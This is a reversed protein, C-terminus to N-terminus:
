FTTSSLSRPSAHAGMPRTGRPLSFSFTAGPGANPAAWIHGEHSDIISRSISLGIGMGGSKTTYFADFLAGASEAAIGTGADQVSLRVRDGEDVATRIELQRPRDDVGSMAESANVLLNLIVQQLQVRDGTVPPLDDALQSRLKVGNRRLEGASLAIVERVADNLDVLENRPDNRSFLGRLRTIVESARNGDRLTRRATERAGDINPPEAALMRLCTSANTVIGALPQNVEHAISATLAGLSTVRGVRALESRLKGLAAESRQRETVDQVAGIYELQGHQDRRGHAVMHLYKVSHDPMLLRHEYEFDSGDGRARNIMDHLLPIDDPHVRAGILELTVPVGPDLEFMRYVQESWTIEDAAVRWSFSGTASVRQAEALFEESRRLEEESWKREIGQAFADAISGLTDLTDPTLPHRAFTAMVGVVRDEVLLPYGAFAVIGEQQAWTKDHVHPDSSVDNTLHPARASAIRGIKLEGVPVRRHRGEINTYLGASAELELVSSGRRLTWIRAFAVDLQRVLADACGQLMGRVSDARALITSVDTRLAARRARRAQAEEALKRETMDVVTGVFERLEGSATLVPHGVAHMHGISGDPHVIRYTVEFDAHERRATEIAGDFLERDDPHIPLPFDRLTLAPTQEPDFGFIRYTDASAALHDTFPNWIWLGTDTPRQGQALSTARRRLQEEARKRDEIDISVGCWRVVRGCEDALPGASILFWRYEGDFRRLRAEMTGRESSAVISRWRALLEALDDPHIAAEWGHGRADGVSLGTFDCWYDSVFDIQGDPRATWLLGPLADVVRNLATDM